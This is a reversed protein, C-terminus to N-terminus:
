HEHVLRALFYVPERRAELAHPWDLSASDPVPQGLCPLPCLHVVLRRVARPAAVGTPQGLGPDVRKASASRIPWESTDIVVTRTWRVLAATARTSSAGPSL